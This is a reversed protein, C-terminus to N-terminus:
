VVLWERFMIEEKGGASGIYSERVIQEPTFISM